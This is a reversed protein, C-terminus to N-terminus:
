ISRTLQVEVTEVFTYEEKSKLSDVIVNTAKTLKNHYETNNLKNIVELHENIINISNMKNYNLILKLISIIRGLLPSLIM